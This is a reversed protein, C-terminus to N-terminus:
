STLATTEHYNWDSCTTDRPFGRWFFQGTNPTFGRLQGLRMPSPRRSQTSRFMLDLLSPHLRDVLDLEARCDSTDAVSSMMGHKLAESRSTWQCLRTILSKDASGHSAHTERHMARQNTRTGGLKSIEPRVWAVDQAKPRTDPWTAEPFM